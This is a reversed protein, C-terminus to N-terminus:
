NKTKSNWESMLKAALALNEDKQLFFFLNHKRHEKRVQRLLIDHRQTPQNSLNKTTQKVWEM